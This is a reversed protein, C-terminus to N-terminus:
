VHARGIQAGYPSLADARTTDITVLIANPRSPAEDKHCTASGLAVLTLLPARLARLGKGPM